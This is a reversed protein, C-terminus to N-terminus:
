GDLQFFNVVSFLGVVSFLFLHDKMTMKCWFFTTVVQELVFFFRGQAM